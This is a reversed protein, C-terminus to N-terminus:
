DSRSPHPQPATGRSASREKPAPAGGSGLLYPRLARMFTGFRADHEDSSALETFAVIVWRAGGPLTLIGGDHAVEDTDGTKHAFADGPELGRSLKVDWWSTALIRRLALAEPIRDEAIAVFLEAAEAAPLTNRGTAEPDDILPLAGSLKRRFATGAFGLAHVDATARERALVDYLQNTAVNDSRQLMFTALEEITTRYGPEIPSPADNLTANRPDVTVPTDWRLRGARIAAGVAAALPVKIMSAPYITRGDDRSWQSGAPDLSQVHIQADGLGAERALLALDLRQM